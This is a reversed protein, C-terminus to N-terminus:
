AAPRMTVNGLWREALTELDLPKDIFYGQLLDCGLEKLLTLEEATEVGECVVRLHLSHAMLVVAKVVDFGEKSKRVEAVFSRDIKLADFGLSKLYGVSSYGIGFDDLATSFGAQRLEQLRVAALRADAVVVSETLEFEVRHPDIGRSEIEGTVASVFDPALLQLSSVNLSVSLQPYLLLDDYVRKILTRGLEVILGAQEAVPIFRDPPVAGLEPSFWRALAEARVLGGRQDVIPQYVLSLEGPHEM